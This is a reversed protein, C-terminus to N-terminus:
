ERGAAYWQIVMATLLLAATEIRFIRPGLDVIHWGAKAALNAEESTFGGEPGIALFIESPPETGDTPHMFPAMEDTHKVCGVDEAHPLNKKAHPAHPHALLRCPQDRTADVYDSFELPEAIEM